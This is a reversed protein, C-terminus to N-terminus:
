VSITRRMASVSAPSSGERIHAQTSSRASARSRPRPRALVPRLLEFAQEGRRAPRRTAERQNKGAGAPAAGLPKGREIRLSELVVVENPPEVGVAREQQRM